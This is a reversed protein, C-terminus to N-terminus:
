VCVVVTRDGHIVEAAPRLAVQRQLRVHVPEVPRQEVVPGAAPDRDVRLANGGPHEMRGNGSGGCWRCGRPGVEDLEHEALTAVDDIAVDVPEGGLPIDDVPGFRDAVRLRRHGPERVQRRQVTQPPRRHAHGGM